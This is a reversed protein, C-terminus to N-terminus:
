GTGIDQGKPCELRPPALHPFELYAYKSAKQKLFICLLSHMHNAKELPLGKQVM